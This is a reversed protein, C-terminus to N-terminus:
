TCELGCLFHPAALFSSKFKYVGSNGLPHKPAEEFEVMVYVQRTWKMCYPNGMELFVKSFDGGQSWKFTTLNANVKGFDTPKQWTNKPSIEGNELQM